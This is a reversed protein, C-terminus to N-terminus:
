GSLRSIVQGNENAVILEGRLYMVYKRFDIPIEPGPIVPTGNWNNFCTRLGDTLNWNSPRIFTQDVCNNNGLMLLSLNNLNNVFNPQIAQIQNNRLALTILNMNHYISDGSIHTLNNFSLDLAELRTLSRFTNSTVNFIRNYALTLIELSTLGDFLQDPLQNIQNNNLNLVRLRTLNRFVGTVITRLPNHTIRIAELAGARLFSTSNIRELRSNEIELTTAFPFTTFLQTIIFPTTSNAIRISRVNHNNRGSIHIGSVFIMAFENLQVINELLCTYDLREDQIYRCEVFSNQVQAESKNVFIGLVLTM